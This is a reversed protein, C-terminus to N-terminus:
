SLLNLADKLGILKGKHWIVEGDNFVENRVKIWEEEIKIMAIIQTKIDSKKNM